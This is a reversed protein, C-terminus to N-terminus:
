KLSAERVVLYDLTDLAQRLMANTLDIKENLHLKVAAESTLNDVPGWVEGRRLADRYNILLQKETETCYVKEQKSRM